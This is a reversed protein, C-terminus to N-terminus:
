TYDRFSILKQFVVDVLLRRSRRNLEDSQPPQVGSKRERASRSHPTGDAHIQSMFM